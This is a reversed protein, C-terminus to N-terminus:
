HRTVDVQVSSALAPRRDRVGQMTYLRPGADVGGAFRPPWQAEVDGGAAVVTGAFEHGMITGDPLLPATSLDSGCIGTAAVALVLDGPGPVPDDVHAITFSGDAIVAARM